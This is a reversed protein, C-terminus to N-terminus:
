VGETEEELRVVRRHVDRAKEMCEEADKKRDQLLDRFSELRHIQEGWASSEM